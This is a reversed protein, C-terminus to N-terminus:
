GTIGAARSKSKLEPQQAGLSPRERDNSARYKEIRGPFVRRVTEVIPHVLLYGEGRDLHRSITLRDNFGDALPIELTWCESQPFQEAGETLSNRWRPMPEGARGAIWLEAHDFGLDHLAELTLQWCEELSEAKDLEMNFSRIRVDAAVLKRMMGGVILRGASGFETYGLHQFGLWSALCFLILIVGKERVEPTSMLLSVGACVGAAAYSIVAVKRPSLGKDLLRHHIHGRDGQFLPAGRLFRRTVSITAEAFPFGLALIPATMGLITASKQSWIIGYAGLLFGILLSGSDGLFISAPNFNFRLFALLAAALPATLLLLEQNGQMVAAVLMTVTAFFGVGSALGDVGDILNFANTCAIIWFVTLPFLVWHSSGLETGAISSVRFGYAYIWSAAAIQGAFKQWPRLDYIDDLVGIVFILGAAPILPLIQGIVSRFIPTSKTEFFYFSALSGVVAIAIPLGGLSPIPHAHLKRDRDPHDLIGAKRVLDRIVPTLVFCIAFSVVALYTLSYM